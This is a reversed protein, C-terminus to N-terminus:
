SQPAGGMDLMATGAVADFTGYFRIDGSIVYFDASGSEPGNGGPDFAINEPHELRIRDGNELMLLFPRFPVQHM